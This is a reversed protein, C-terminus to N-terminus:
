RNVEILLVNKSRKKIFKSESIKHYRSVLAKFMEIDSDFGCIEKFINKLFENESLELIFTTKTLKKDKVTWVLTVFKSIVDDLEAEDIINYPNYAALREVDREIRSM